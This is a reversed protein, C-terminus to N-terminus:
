RNRCHPHQSKINASHSQAVPHWAMTQRKPTLMSDSHVNGKYTYAHTKAQAAACSECSAEGASLQM